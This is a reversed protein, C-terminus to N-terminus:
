KTEVTKLRVEFKLLEDCYLNWDDIFQRPDDDHCYKIIGEIWNLLDEDSQGSFEGIININGSDCISNEISSINLSAM